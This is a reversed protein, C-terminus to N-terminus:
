EDEDDDGSGSSLTTSYTSPTDSRRLVELMTTALGRALIRGEALSGTYPERNDVSIAAEM